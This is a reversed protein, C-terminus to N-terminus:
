LSIFYPVITRFFHINGFLRRQSTSSTSDNGLGNNRFYVTFTRELDRYGARGTAPSCSAFAAPNGMQYNPCWIYFNSANPAGIPVSENFVRVVIRVQAWRPAQGAPFNPNSEPLIQLEVVNDWKPDGDRINLNVPGPVGGLPPGPNIMLRGPRVNSPTRFFLASPLYQSGLKDSVERIFVALTFTTEPAVPALPNASNFTRIQGPAGGVATYDIVYGDIPSTALNPEALTPLSGRLDTAQALLMRVHYSMELLDRQANVSRQFAAFTTSNWVMITAGLVAIIGGIAVSVMLEPLTFGKPNKLANPQLTNQVTRM